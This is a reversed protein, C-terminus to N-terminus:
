LRIKRTRPEDCAHDHNWRDGCEPCFGHKGHCQLDGQAVASSIELMRRWAFDMQHLWEEDSWRRRFRDLQGTVRNMVIYEFDPWRGTQDWYAWTYLCPQWVEAQARDQSWKGRTTKFDYVVNNGWLDVAGVTPAGIEPTDLSFPREPIGELGLAIAKDLLGLGMGILDRHVRMERTQEKWARRFVLEHDQNGQYHAELALHVATGFATAETVEFAVGDIYRQKFEGPCVDFTMFRTASWHPGSVKMAQSVQAAAVRPHGARGM